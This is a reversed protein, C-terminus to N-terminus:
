TETFIRLGEKVHKQVDDGVLRYMRILERESPSLQDMVKPSASKDVGYFLYNADTDFFECIPVIFQLFTKNTEYRWHSVRGRGIGLYKELEYDSKGSESLLDLIRNKIAENDQQHIQKNNEKHNQKHSQQHNQKNNQKQMIKKDTLVM